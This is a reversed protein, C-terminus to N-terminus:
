NASANRGGVLAVSREALSGADGSVCLAAPADDLLGLLPPYGQEGAFLMHAGLRSLNRLEREAEGPGPIALPSARGGARTLGPLAELAAEASGYRAILRRYAVPGVGETRALRLRDVADAPGPTPEHEKALAPSPEKSWAASTATTAPS